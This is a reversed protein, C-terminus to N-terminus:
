IWYHRNDDFLQEILDCSGVLRDEYSGSVCSIDIGYEKFMGKLKKDNRERVEPDGLFRLGDAVWPVDPELYIYLDIDQKEIFQDIFDSKAGNFYEGLYYQSVVAESDIIIFRNAKYCAEEDLLYQNMVIEDFVAETLHNKYKFCIDRGYEPVWVTNFIKSLNSCLTTKGCSETGVVAVKLAFFPRVAEPIFNWYRFPNRRIMTASIPHNVRDADLVVHEANPFNKSFYKGYEPESSFVVDINETIAKKILEAGKDWDYDAVGEHDEVNVIEINNYEAFTQGLWSMREIAPMYKCGDQECLERDRVESSSLVIYLKDVQKLAQLIAFEHGTHFPLFKGGIFGVRM